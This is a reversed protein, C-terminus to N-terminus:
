VDLSIRPMSAYADTVHSMDCIARKPLESVLKLGSSHVSRSLAVYAHGPAFMCAPYVILNKLSMGQAKHITVAWGYTLPLGTVRRVQGREDSFFFISVSQLEMLADDYERRVHVRYDDNDDSAVKEVVCFDGNCFNKTTHTIMIRTKPCLKLDRKFILNEQEVNYIQTDGRVEKRSVLREKLQIVIELQDAAISEYCNANIINAENHTSVLCTSNLQNEVTPPQKLTLTSFFDVCSTNGTRLSNLNDIFLAESQRMNETLEFLKFSPWVNAEYVPKTTVNKDVPPLQYLDGFVVVGVGGFPESTAGSSYKLKTDIKDLMQAPIMSIEDIIVYDPKSSLPIRRINLKFDFGFASHCTKGQVNRAALNTYAAVVVTKKEKFWFKRLAKLLASKGTGACGSVFIPEFTDKETLYNFISQQKANLQVGTEVRRRRKVNGSM